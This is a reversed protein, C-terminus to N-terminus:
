VIIAIFITKMLLKINTFITRKLHVLGLDASRHSYNTMYTPFFTLLSGWNQYYPRLAQHHLTPCPTPEVIPTKNHQHGTQTTESSRIAKVTSPTPSTQPDWFNTGTTPTEQQGTSSPHRHKKRPIHRQSSQCVSESRGPQPTTWWVPALPPYLHPTSLTRQPTQCLRKHDGHQNLPYSFTSRQKQATSHLHGVRPNPFLRSAKEAVRCIEGVTKQYLSHLEKTGTYM